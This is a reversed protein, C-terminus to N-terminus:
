KCTLKFNVFTCTPKGPPEQFAVEGCQDRGPSGGAPVANANLEVTVRLPEDGPHLAYGGDSGQVAVSFLMPDVFLLQKIIIRAIGNQVPPKTRDTYVWKNGLTGLVKWGRSASPSGGPIAEDVILRGNRDIVRVHIGHIQPAITPLLSGVRFRARLRMKDNTAPAGLSSFNVKPKIWDGSSGSRSCPDGGGLAPPNFGAGMCFLDGDSDNNVDEPCIDCASGFVDGDTNAQGPDAVTPCVDDRDCVGDSDSDIRQCTASCCLDAGNSGDGNDCQEPVAVIGNGCRTFTCNADCGDGNLTNGDDCLEFPSRVGDGCAGELGCVPSCGDGGLLNGDDCQEGTTVIGNGCATVACNSDCGDGNVLNGDDCQEGPDQVANGCSNDPFFYVAGADVEVTDDQPAGVVIRTGSVALARGFEDGVAPEAKLFTQLLTESAADFLYAAGTNLLTPSDGRIAGVLV